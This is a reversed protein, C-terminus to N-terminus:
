PLTSAIVRGTPGRFRSEFRYAEAELPNRHYADDDLYEPLEGGGSIYGKGYECAFAQEGGLRRVQDVHVLEHMLRVLDGSDSEDLAARWLMTTGFTMAYISGTEQFRNPPLRCHERVRVAELDIDPFLDGLREITASTLPRSRRQFNAVQASRKTERYVSRGLTCGVPEIHSTWIGLADGVNRLTRTWSAMDDNLCPRRPHREPSRFTASVSALHRRTTALTTHGLVAVADDVDHAALEVPVDHRDGSM